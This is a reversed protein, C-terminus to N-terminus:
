GSDKCLYESLEHIQEGESLIMIKRINLDKVSDCMVSDAILLMEIERERGYACLSEAGTFAQVEFEEGKRSHIYEMLNYVYVAEPDCVALVGKKM